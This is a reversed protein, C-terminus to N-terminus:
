TLDGLTSAEISGPHIGRGRSWQWAPCEIYTYGIGDLGMVRTMMPKCERVECLARHLVSYWVHVLSTGIDVSVSVSGRM